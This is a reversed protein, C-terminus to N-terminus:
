DGQPLGVADFDEQTHIWGERGDIRVKLWFDGGVDLAATDSSEDWKVEGAGGVVEVRSDKRIVVHQVGLGDEPEAHLRVFTLDDQQTQREAIVAFECQPKMGEATMRYCRWAPGMRAQFWDVRLPIVAFVNSTWVKFRLVEALLGPETSTTLPAKSGPPPGVLDGEVSIPKSFPVLKGDFLGFVQFDSGGLPTSPLSSKVVMLGSGGRGSLPEASVALTEQFQGDEVNAPYDAQVHIRGRGDRIAMHTVTEDDGGARRGHTSIRKLTLEVVFRQDKIPFPGLRQHVTELRVAPAPSPKPAAAAEGAFAALAALAVLGAVARRGNRVIQGEGRALQAMTQTRGGRLLNM